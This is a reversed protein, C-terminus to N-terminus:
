SRSQKWVRRKWRYFRPVLPKWGLERLLSTPVLRKNKTSWRGTVCARIRDAIWHDLERFQKDSTCRCFHRTWDVDGPYIYTRNVKAILRRLANKGEETSLSDRNLERFNRKITARRIRRKLRNIAYPRVQVEQGRVRYGLAEFEEGPKFLRSKDGSLILHLRNAKEELAELAEEGREKSEAFVFIDDAYRVYRFGEKAMGEDLPRLYLNALFPTLIGGRPLGVTRPLLTGERLRPNYLYKLYLDLVLPEEGLLDEVAQTMLDLDVTDLFTRFDGKVVWRDEGERIYRLLQGFATYQSRGPRYSYCNENLLHDFRPEVVEAVARQVLADSLSSRCIIRADPRGKKPKAYEIFPSFEYEGTLLLSQIRLLNEREEELFDEMTQGDAGPRFEYKGQYPNYYRKRYAELITRLHDLKAIASILGKRKEKWSNKWRYYEGVLSKLGLEQLTRTPLLRYNGKNWRKTATARIRERIWFDLERFQDDFDCRSFYRVWNHLRHGTIERNVRAITEKLAGKGKETALGERKLGKGRPRPTAKRIRAKFKALSRPGIKVKDGEFEYGLHTFCGGPPVLLSKENNLSLGLQAATTSIIEKAEQAEERSEAFTLMDDCYRLYYFGEMKIDLPRLYLNSLFNAMITGVPVGKTRPLLTGKVARPTKLYRFYLQHIAPPLLEGLQALLREHEIEEFYSSIDEKVVWFRRQRHHEVIRDLAANLNPAGQGVRFAYCNPSLHADFGREVVLALAKQVVSDRLSARCITKQKGGWAPIAVELFPSFYYGGELLRAQIERLNGDLNQAFKEWTKGDIGPRFRGNGRYRRQLHNAARLLHGLDAVQSLLEM